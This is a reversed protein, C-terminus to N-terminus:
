DEFLAVQNILNKTEAKGNTKTQSVPELLRKIIRLKYSYIKKEVDFIGYHDIKDIRVSEAVHIIRGEPLLLGCHNINGLNNEFFAIDGTQTQEIFDVDTGFSVQSGCDRPLHIGILKFAMQVFGASDIGLPSRGGWMFPAHLYRLAVKILIDPRADLNEPAVAQGSYTFLNNNFRFKIGDFDPLRAGIPIVM